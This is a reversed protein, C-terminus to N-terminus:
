SQRHHVHDRIEEAKNQNNVLPGEIASILAEWTVPFSKTNIWLRIVNSLKSNNNGSAGVLGDLDNVPVKLAFGIDQWRASIDALLNLVEYHDPVKKFHDIFSCLDNIIVVATDM